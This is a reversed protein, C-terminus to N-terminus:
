SIDPLATITIEVRPNLKDIGGISWSSGLHFKVNDNSVLGINQAFDLFIKEILAIINSGDCTPNKYYLTYHVKYTSTITDFSENFSEKLSQELDQKLKNQTFHHANRFFNMGVLHVKDPKTKFKEAWYIPMSFTYSHLSDDM